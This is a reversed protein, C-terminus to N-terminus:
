SPDQRLLRLLNEPLRTAENKIGQRVVNHHFELLYLRSPISEGLVSENYPLSFYKYFLVASKVGPQQTFGSVSNSLYIEGANLTVTANDSHHFCEGTRSGIRPEQGYNRGDM